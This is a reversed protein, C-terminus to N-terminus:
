NNRDAVATRVKLFGTKLSEFIQERFSRDIEGEVENLLAMADVKGEKNFIKDALVENQAKRLLSDVEADSISFDNSELFDVHATIEAIKIDILEKSGKIKADVKEREALASTIQTKSISKPSAVVEPSEKETLPFEKSIVMKAEFTNPNLPVIEQERIKVNELPEEVVEIDNKIPTNQENFYIVLIILIGIFSAATGYWFFKNSKTIKQTELQDAITNWANSSPRIERRELKDKIYREFKDPEM